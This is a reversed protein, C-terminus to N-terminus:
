RLSSGVHDVGRITFVRQMTAPDFDAHAGRDAARGPLLDRSDTLHCCPGAPIIGALFGNHFQQGRDNSISTM